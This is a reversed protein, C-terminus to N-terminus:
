KASSHFVSDTPREILHLLNGEADQFFQVRGGGGAPKVPESFVVGRRSLDARTAEMSDVRLALHRWGALRNNSTEELATDSHYIEIMLGRGLELFFARPLEATEFVVRADLARVYWDKLAETDRAALGIHEVAIIMAASIPPPCLSFM